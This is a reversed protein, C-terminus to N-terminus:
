LQGLDGLVQEREARSARRAELFLFERCRRTDENQRATQWWSEMCEGWRRLWQLREGALRMQHWGTHRSNTLIAVPKFFLTSKGEDAM